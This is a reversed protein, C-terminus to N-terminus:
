EGGGDKHYILALPWRAPYGAEGAPHGHAHRVRFEEDLTHGWAEFNLLVFCGRVSTVNVRM